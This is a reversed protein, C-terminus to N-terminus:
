RSSYKEDTFFEKMLRLTMDAGQSFGALVIPRGNNYHQMYYLFAERVDSYATNFYGQALTKNLGYVVMGAQRYYPAYVRCDEDYIGLGSTLTNYFKQRMQADDTPMNFDKKSGPFVTPCLVFVDAEKDDGVGCYAWNYSDAYKEPQPQTQTNAAQTAAANAQKSSANACGCVAFALVAALLVATIKKSFKIM